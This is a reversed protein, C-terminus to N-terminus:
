EVSNMNNFANHVYSKTFSSGVDMSDSSKVLNNNDNFNNNALDRYYKLEEGQNKIHQQNQKFSQRLSKNEKTQSKVRKQINNFEPQDIYRDCNQHDSDISNSNNKSTIDKCSEM